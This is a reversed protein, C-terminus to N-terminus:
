NQLSDRSPFLRVKAADMNPAYLMEVEDFDAQLDGSLSTGPHAAFDRVNSSVFVAPVKVGSARVGRLHELYGEVILCDKAGTGGKGAPARAGAIRQAARLDSTDTRSTDRGVRMWRDAIARCRDVHGSWASPKVAGGESYRRAHAAVINDVSALTKLLRRLAAAAESCVADIHGAYESRVLDAIRVDLRGAEALDLLSLAAVHHRSRISGTSPDRVIDLISCTDVCLIPVSAHRVFQPNPSSM